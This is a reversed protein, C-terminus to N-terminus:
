AASRAIARQARKALRMTVRREALQEPTLAARRAADRERQADRNRAYWERQIERKRELRRLEEPGAEPGAALAARRQAKAAISKEAMQRLHELRAPTLAHSRVPEDDTVHVRTPGEIRVIPPPCFLDVLSM